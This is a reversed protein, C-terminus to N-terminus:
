GFRGQQGSSTELRIALSLFVVQASIESEGQSHGRVPHRGHDSRASFDDAFRVHDTESEESEAPFQVLIAYGLSSPWLENAPPLVRFTASLSISLFRYKHRAFSKM